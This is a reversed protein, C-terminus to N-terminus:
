FLRYVVQSRRFRIYSLIYIGVTLISQVIIAVVSFTSISFNVSFNFTFNKTLIILILGLVAQIVWLAALTKIFSMKPWLISGFFFLSQNLLYGLGLASGFYDRGGFNESFLLTFPNAIHYYPNDPGVKGYVAINMVVRSIDTLYFGGILILTLGVVIALWRVLFKQWIEAPLMLTAIRGEKSKMDSFSLSSVSWGMVSLIFMLVAAQGDGGGKYEYGIFGGLMICFGYIVALTLLISKRNVAFDHKMVLLLSSFIEKKLPKDM